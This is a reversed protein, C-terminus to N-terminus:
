RLPQLGKAAAEKAEYKPRETVYHAQLRAFMADLNPFEPGTCETHYTSRYWDIRERTPPKYQGSASVLLTPVEGRNAHVIVVSMAYRDTGTNNLMQLTAIDGNGCPIRALAEALTADNTAKVHPASAARDAAIKMQSNVSIGAFIVVSLGWAAWAFPPRKLLAAILGAAACLAGLGMFAGVAGQLQRGIGLGIAAQIYVFGLVATVILTTRLPQRTKGEPRLPDSM